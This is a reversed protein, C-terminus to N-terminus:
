LEDLLEVVAKINGGMVQEMVIGYVTAFKPFCGLGWEGWTEAAEAM